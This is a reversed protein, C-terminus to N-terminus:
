CINIPSSNRKHQIYAYLWALSLSAVAIGFTKYETMLSRDSKESLMGFTLSFVFILLAIRDALNLARRQFTLSLFTMAALFLLIILAQGRPVPLKGYHGTSLAILAGIIGYAIFGPLIKVWRDMLVILIVTGIALCIWPILLTRLLSSNPEITKQFCIADLGVVLLVFTMFAFLIWGATKFGNKIQTEYSDGRSPKEGRSLLDSLKSTPAHEEAKNM